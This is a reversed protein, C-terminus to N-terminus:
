KAAGQAQIFAILDPLDSDKPLTKSMMAMQRGYTDKPNAGRSRFLSTYSM